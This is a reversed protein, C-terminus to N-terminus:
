TMGLDYLIHCSALNRSFPEAFIRIIDTTKFILEYIKIVASLGHGQGWCPEGI